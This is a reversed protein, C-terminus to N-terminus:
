EINVKGILDMVKKVAERTENYGTNYLTHSTNDYICEWQRPYDSNLCSVMSGCSISKKCANTGANYAAIWNQVKNGCVKQTMEFYKEALCTAKDENTDNKLWDCTIVNKDVGCQRAFDQATGPLFQFPGCAGASSEERKGCSSEEIAKAKLLKRMNPDNTYKKIYNDYRDCGNPNM